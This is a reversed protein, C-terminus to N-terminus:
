LLTRAGFASQLQPKPSEEKARPHKGALRFTYKSSSAIAPGDFLSFILQNKTRQHCSYQVDNIIM